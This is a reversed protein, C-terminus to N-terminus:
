ICSGGLFTEEAIIEQLIKKPEKLEATESARRIEEKAIEAYINNSSLPPFTEEVQTSAMLSGSKQYTKSLEKVAFSELIAADPNPMEGKSAEQFLKIADRQMTSIIAYPPFAQLQLERAKELYAIGLNTKLNTSLLPPTNEDQIISNFAALAQDWDRQFLYITGKDYLLVQEQWLKLKKDQLRELSGVARSFESAEFLVIAPRVSQGHLPLFSLALIAMWQNKGRTGPM